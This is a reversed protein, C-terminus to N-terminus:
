NGGSAEYASWALSALAVIAYVYKRGAPPIVDTLINM